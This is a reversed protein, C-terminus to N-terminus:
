EAVLFLNLYCCCKHGENADLHGAISTCRTVKSNFALFLKCSTDGRKMVRVIFVVAEVLWRTSLKPIAALNRVGQDTCLLQLLCGFTDMTRLCPFPVIVNQAENIDLQGTISAFLKWVRLAIMMPNPTRFSSLYKRTPIFSNGCIDPPTRGSALHKSLCCYEQRGASGRDVLILSGFARIWSLQALLM